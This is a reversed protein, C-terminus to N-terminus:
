ENDEVEQDVDLGESMMHAKSIEEFNTEFITQVEETNLAAQEPTENIVKVEMKVDDKRKINLKVSTM